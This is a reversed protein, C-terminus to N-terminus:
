GNGGGWMDPLSILYGEGLESSYFPLATQELYLIYDLPCEKRSQCLEEWENEELVVAGSNEGDGRLFMGMCIIGIMVLDFVLIVSKAKM